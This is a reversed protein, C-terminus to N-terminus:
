LRRQKEFPNLIIEVAKLYSECHHYNRCSECVDKTEEVGLSDFCGYVLSPSYGKDMFDRSSQEALIKKIKICNILVISGKNDVM